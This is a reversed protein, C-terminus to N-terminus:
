RSEAISIAKDLSGNHNIGLEAIVVPPEDDGITRTGIKFKKNIKMATYGGDVIFNQGTAYSSSDSMLYLIIGSLDDPEAMRKLHEIQIIKLFNKTHNNYVGGPTVANVRVSHKRVLYSVM